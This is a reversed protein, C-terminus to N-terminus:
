NFNKSSLEVVAFKNRELPLPYCKNCTTAKRVFLSMSLDQALHMGYSTSVRPESFLPGVSKFRKLVVYAVNDKRLVNVVMGFKDDFKLCSDRRGRSYATGDVIVKDYQESEEFGDPVPGDEHLRMYKTTQKQKVEDMNRRELTRNVIQKLTCGPKRLLKKIQYMHNEYPFSSVNDLSGYKAADAPLHILGHVNYVAVDDGYADCAGEIFRSMLRHTRQHNLRCLDANLLIRMACVLYLFNKYYAEPMKNRVAVVGIYCLFQRYETAKWKKVDDLSRPRRAFESPCYQQYLLLRASIEAIAARGLGRPGFVWRVLLLKMVGLLVMHMYDLPFQSVMGATSCVNTTKCGVPM